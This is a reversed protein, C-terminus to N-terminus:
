NGCTGDEVPCCSLGQGGDRRVPDTQDGGQRYSPTFRLVQGGSRPFVAPQATEGAEGAAVGACVRRPLSRRLQAM